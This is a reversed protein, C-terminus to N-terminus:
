ADSAMSASLIGPSNEKQDFWGINKQLISTYLFKRIKLTVNEGIVGFSFKQSFGTFFAACSVLFMYLCYKDSDARVQSLPYIFEFLPDYSLVFLMKSLYIGFLPMLSGQLISVFIGILINIKPESLGIM